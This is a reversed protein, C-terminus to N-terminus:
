RQCGSCIVFEQRFWGGGCTLVPWSTRSLSPSSLNGLQGRLFISIIEMFYLLNCYITICVTNIPADNTYWWHPQSSHFKHFYNIEEIVVRLQDRTWRVQVRASSVSCRLHSFGEWELFETKSLCEGQHEGCEESPSSHTVGWRASYQETARLVGCKHLLKNTEQTICFWPVHSM